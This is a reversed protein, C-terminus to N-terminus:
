PTLKIPGTAKRRGYFAWVAGGFALALNVIENIGGTDDATWEWGILGAVVPIMTIMVGQITKSYLFFKDM